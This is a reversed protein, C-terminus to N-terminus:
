KEQLSSDGTFGTAPANFAAFRGRGRRAGCLRGRVHQRFERGDV